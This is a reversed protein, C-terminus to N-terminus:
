KEEVKGVGEIETPVTEHEALITDIQHVKLTELEKDIYSIDIADRADGGRVEVASSGPAAHAYALLLTVVTLYSSLLRSHMTHIVNFRLVIISLLIEIAINPSIPLLRQCVCHLLTHMM